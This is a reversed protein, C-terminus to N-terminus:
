GTENWRDAWSILYCKATFELQGPFLAVGLLCKGASGQDKFILLLM